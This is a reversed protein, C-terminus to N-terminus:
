RRGGRWGQGDCLGAGQGGGMGRGRGLGMGGPCPGGTLACMGRGMLGALKKKQSADLHERLEVMYEVTNLQLAEQARCFRKAASVTAERDSKPDELVKLLGDRAEIVADRLAPRVSAYDADAEQLATRQQPTLELYDQLVAFAVPAKTGSCLGRVALRTAAFSGVGLVVLAGIVVLLGKRM